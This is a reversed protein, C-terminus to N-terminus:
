RAFYRVTLGPGPPEVACPGLIRSLMEPSAPVVRSRPKLVLGEGYACVIEYNENLARVIDPGFLSIGRYTPIMRGSGLIALDYNGTQLEKVVGDSNWHGNLELSHNTLPDLLGPDRTHLLLYGDDSFIKLSGLYGPPIHRGGGSPPLAYYSAACDALAALFGLTVVIGTIKITDLNEAFARMAFPLLLACGAFAPLFYNTEGELQPITAFAALINVVTFSVLMQAQEGETIARLSGIAAVVFLMLITPRDLHGQGVWSVAGTLSWVVKGASLFHELFPERHRWLLVFAIVLPVGAAVTCVIVNRYRKNLLFVLVIAVGAAAASQKLLFGVGVLFGSLASATLGMKRSRLAFYLGLLMALLAPVDPRMTAGWRAFLPQALMLMAALASVGKSFDLERGILWATFACLLMCVFDLTRGLRLTADVDLGALKAVGASALYFLPGLPQPTYPPASIPHYLHRTRVALIGIFPNVPESSILDGHFPIIKAAGIVNLLSGITCYALLSCLALRTLIKPTM